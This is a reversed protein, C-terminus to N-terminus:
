RVTGQNVAPSAVGAGNQDAQREARALAAEIFGSFVPHGDRPTSTFEPHFQCSLFWPHEPLEIMEVLEGDASRGSVVLGHEVLRPVYRNNVEYRHRHRERVETSGYTRAALTGPELVCLQEGLRMTGGLDENGSRLEVQGTADLWETVLGIVPHPTDPDIETSHAGELGAVHRAFEIVAAHLGYCIGLYPVQRERAYQVALIKGEFGRRGFGGPVLIASVDDLAATGHRELDEADLYKVQV